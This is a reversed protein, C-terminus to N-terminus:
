KMGECFARIGQWLATAIMAQSDVHGKSVYELAQRMHSIADELHEAATYRENSKQSIASWVACRVKSAEDSALGEFIARYREADKAVLRDKDRARRGETDAKMAEMLEVLCAWTEPSEGGGHNPECFEVTAVNRFTKGDPDGEYASVCIDGDDLQMVRLMGNPSMDEPRAEERM